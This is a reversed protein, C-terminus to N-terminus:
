KQASTLEFPLNQSFKLIKEQDINFQYALKQKQWTLKRKLSALQILFLEEFAFRKRAENAQKKTKPFHIQQFAKNLALLDHKKFIPTPLFDKVTPALSKILPAIRSRLWKSSLGYTEHYVPVLRGTHIALGKKRIEYEPSVLAVKRDFWGVKGSFNVKLGIKLTRVLFPQNFWVINITGTEDKLVAKQIKKGRKTYENKISIIEGKISVTEGPQIRAIPSILSYDIYRFPFHYLLDGITEIELKKLRRGYTPGVMFLKSVSTSLNM